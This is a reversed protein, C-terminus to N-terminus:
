SSSESAPDVSTSPAAERPTLPEAPPQRSFADLIALDEETLRAGPHLMVYFWPPMRGEAVEEGMERQKRARRNPSFSAWDSFNLEERGEEVDHEVLWSMPAIYGYWPWETEHSHCDYCARRLIKLVPEPAPMESVIPPNTRRVPVLQIGLLAVCAVLLLRM